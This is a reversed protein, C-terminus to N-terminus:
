TNLQNKGGDSMTTHNPWQDNLWAIWDWAFACRAFGNVQPCASGKLASHFQDKWPHPIDSFSVFHPKGNKDSYIPVLEYLETATMFISEM